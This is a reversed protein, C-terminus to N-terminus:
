SCRRVRAARCSRAAAVASDPLTFAHTGGRFSQAPPRTRADPLELVAPAGALAGQWYALQERRREPTLRQRQRRAVDWYQAPLPAPGSTAPRARRTGGHWSPAFIRDVSWRDVAIHHFVVHLLHEDAAVRVLRARLPVDRSLDFPRRVM